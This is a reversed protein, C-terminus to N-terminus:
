RLIRILDELMDDATTIIKASASYARQTTIMKTFEEALDVTSSELASSVVNGAGGNEAQNLLVDGSFATQVYANGDRSQLGNPNSFIAIPM